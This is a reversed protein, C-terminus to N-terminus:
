AARAVTVPATLFELRTGCSKHTLAHTNNRTPPNRANGYPHRRVWVHTAPGKDWLLGGCSPCRVEAGVVRAWEVPVAELPPRAGPTVM